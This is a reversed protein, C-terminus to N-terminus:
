PTKLNMKEHWTFDNLVDEKPYGVYEAMDVVGRNAWEVTWGEWIQQQLEVFKRRYPVDRQIKDCAFLLLYKNDIDLVAGGEAFLEDLWAGKFEEQARIYERAFQFDWFLTKDLNIAIWHDYYVTKEGNEIIILNTRHGM